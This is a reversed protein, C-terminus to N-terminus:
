LLDVRSGPAVCEETYVLPSETMRIADEALERRHNIHELREYLSFHIQSITKDDMNKVQSSSLSLNM